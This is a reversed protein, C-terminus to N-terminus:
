SGKVAPASGTTEPEGPLSESSSGTRQIFDIVEEPDPMGHPHHGENKRLILKFTGGFQKYQRELIAGNESYPVADDKEGAIYIVAVKASILKAALDVPNERYALAEAESKFGYMQILSQWDSASGKGIGLKGGPWSKFDCVAKDLYLCSVKGPNAAAWRAIALGERSLGLLAAQRFLGYRATMQEYLRDWKAIASPAGFTNGLPLSVVHFGRRVLQLETRAMNAVAPSDLDYLQPVLVWPKGVRPQDPCLISAKEAGVRVSFLACGHFDVKSGTFPKEAQLLAAPTVLLIALATIWRM